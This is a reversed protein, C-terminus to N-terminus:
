SEPTDVLTEVESEELLDEIQNVVWCSYRVRYLAKDDGKHIWFNIAGDSASGGLLDEEVPPTLVRLMWM